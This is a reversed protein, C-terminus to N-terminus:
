LKLRNSKFHSTCIKLHTNDMSTQLYANPARVIMMVYVCAQTVDQAYAVSLAVYLAAMQMM